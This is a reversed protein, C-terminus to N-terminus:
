AATSVAPLAARPATCLQAILHGDHGNGVFPSGLGSALDYGATAGYEGTNGILDNTGSEIDNFASSAAAGTGIAYLAPNAFGVPSGACAPNADALAFVAAWLPAAISTGGYSNWGGCGAEACYFILPTGADATVDPVMRGTPSGTTGAGAGGAAVVHSAVTAQYSPMGWLTSVGGGGAGVSAGQNWVRETEGGSAGLTTGGVGTVDPQSAPDDVALGESDPQGNYCDQSGDDGAAAVVTEHLQAAQQFIAAESAAFAPTIDAECTGWSTSIVNAGSAVAAAYTDLIGSASRESGEFVVVKAKPALAVLEEVDMDAELQGALDSGGSRATGPGGDVPVATVTTHLSLCREFAAVDRRYFPAFEILAITTGAGLDGARYAATLDYASAVDGFGLADSEGPSASSALEAACSATLHPGVRLAQKRVKAVMAHLAPSAAPSALSTASALECGSASFLTGTLALMAGIRGVSNSTFKRAFTM